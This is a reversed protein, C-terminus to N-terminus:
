ALSPLATTPPLSSSLASRGITPAEQRRTCSRQIKSPLLSICHTHTPSPPLAETLAESACPGGAETDSFGVPPVKRCFRRTGPTM